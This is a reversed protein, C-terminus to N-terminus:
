TSEPPKIFRRMGTILVVCIVVPVFTLVVAFVVVSSETRLFPVVVVAAALMFGAMIALWTGAFRALGAEDHASGPKYGSILGTKQKVGILWALVLILGASGVLSLSVILLASTPM